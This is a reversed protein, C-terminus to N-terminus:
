LDADFGSEAQACRARLLELDAQQLPTTRLFAAVGGYKQRLADLTLRMTEPLNSSLVRYYGEQDVSLSPDALGRERREQLQPTTYAYDAIIAEDRVGLGGLLLAAILGTRDKGAHCHFLVGGPRARAISTLVAAVHGRNTEALRLYLDSMAAAPDDGAQWLLNQDIDLPLNLYDVGDAGDVGPGGMPNPNVKLESAFRLDIVTRIGYDRLARQGEATLLAPNESRVFVGWRTQGGGALPYGGLERTNLTEPWNLQRDFGAMM